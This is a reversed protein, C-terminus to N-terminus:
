SYTFIRTKVLVTGYYCSVTRYNFLILCKNLASCTLGGSQEVKPQSVYSHYKKGFYASKRLNKTLILSLSTFNTENM